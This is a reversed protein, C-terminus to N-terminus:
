SRKQHNRGRKGKKKKELLDHFKKGSIAKPLPIRTKKHKQGSTSTPIKLVEKFAPSVQNSSMPTLVQASAEKADTQPEATVQINSQVTASPVPQDGAVVTESSMEPVESSVTDNDSSQEHNDPKNNSVEVM